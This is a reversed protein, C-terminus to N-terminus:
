ETVSALLQQQYEPTFKEALLHRAYALISADHSCETSSQFSSVTPKDQILDFFPVVNDLWQSLVIPSLKSSSRLIQMTLEEAYERFNPDPHIRKSSCDRRFAIPLIHVADSAINM